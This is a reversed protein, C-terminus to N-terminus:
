TNQKQYNAIIWNNNIKELTINVKDYTKNNSPDILEMTAICTIKQEEQTKIKIDVNGFGYMYGKYTESCYLKDDQELYYEKTTAAFAQKSAIVDTTMYKKLSNLMEDYTTFDTSVKRTTGYIEIYNNETNGCYVVPLEYYKYVFKFIERIKEQTINTNNNNNNEVDIEKYNLLKDYVIYGSLSIVSISLVIIIIKLLKNEM